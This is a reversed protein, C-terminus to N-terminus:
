QEWQVLLREWYFPYVIRTDDIIIRQLRDMRHVRCFVVFRDPYWNIYFDSGGTM